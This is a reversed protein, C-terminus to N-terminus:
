KGRRRKTQKIAASTKERDSIENSTFKVFRGKTLARGDGACHNKTITAASENIKLHLTMMQICFRTYHKNYGSICFARLRRLATEDPRHPRIKLKKACLPATKRSEAFFAVTKTTRVRRRISLINVCFAYYAFEAHKINARRMGKPPLLFIAKPVPLRAYMRRERCFIVM